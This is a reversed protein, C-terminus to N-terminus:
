GLDGGASLKGGLAQDVAQFEELTFMGRMVGVLETYGAGLAAQLVFLRDKLSQFQYFNNGLLAAVETAGTQGDRLFASLMIVLTSMLYPNEKLMMTTIRVCDALNGNNFCCMALLERTKMLNASLFASRAATGYRELIRLARRLHSEGLKYEGRTVYYRGMVYDYDGEEPWGETAQGYLELLEREDTGPLAARLELLRFWFGSSSMDYVGRMGEPMLSLAKRYCQEALEWNEMAEYENGLSGLMVYDDPSEELEREILRLNRGSRTKRLSEAKGYGTHYISLETTGDAMSPSRGDWTRLYEHVRRQYRLGPINKFLRIQSERAIVNGENDLHVWSALVGEYATDRLRELYQPLKGADEANFYEDADLFAIWEGRAKSIAFNKAAAFDDVWEFHYVSAGMERALAVTRDTSGTDVVIQEWVVDKGWSLARKINKEEDRVIVCQSIRVKGQTM